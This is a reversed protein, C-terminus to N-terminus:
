DEEVVQGQVDIVKSKSNHKRISSTWGRGDTRHSPSNSTWGRGGPRFQQNVKRAMTNVKLVLVLILIVETGLWMRTSNFIARGFLFNFIILFPLLCGSSGVWISGSNAM